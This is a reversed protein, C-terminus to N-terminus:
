AKLVWVRNHQQASDVNDLHHRLRRLMEPLDHNLDDSLIIGAHERGVALWRAHLRRFDAANFTYIARGEATAFALQDDDSIGRNARGLSHCSAADYGLLRLRDALRPTIMEDTLVKSNQGTM